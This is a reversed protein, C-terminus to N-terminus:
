RIVWVASADAGAAGAGPPVPPGDQKPLDPREASALIQRLSTVARAHQLPTLGALLRREIALVEPFAEDIIRVGEPTLSILAGRGDAPNPSRAVLGTKQLAATRKTIAAASVLTVTRLSGPTQPADARRLATLVDFEGRSLGLGALYAGTEREILAAARLLRAALEMASVDLDPRLAMWQQRIADVADDERAM